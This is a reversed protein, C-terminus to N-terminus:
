MCITLRRNSANTPTICRSTQVRREPIAHQVPFLKLVQSGMMYAEPTLQSFCTFASRVLGIDAPELLLHRSPLHTLRSVLKRSYAVDLGLIHSPNDVAIQFAYFECPALPQNGNSHLEFPFTVFVQNGTMTYETIQGGKEIHTYHTGKVICHIEIIDSHYHVPPPPSASNTNFHSVNGLGPVKHKNKTIIKKQKTWAFDDFIEQM